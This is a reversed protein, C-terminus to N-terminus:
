DASERSSAHRDFDAALVLGSAEPLGGERRRRPWTVRQGTITRGARWRDFSHFIDVRRPYRVREGIRSTSEHQSATSRCAEVTEWTTKFSM